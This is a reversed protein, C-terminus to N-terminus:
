EGLVEKIIKLDIPKKKKLSLEDVKYIFDFIKSYSRHIRKIIFDILKKDISIQRDSLNKLILAFILNDDPKEINQLIFNKARSKLDTLSFEINVIPINSTVIIYKNELDVINFLSYLLKEDINKDLDELIINEYIKIKKLDDNKLSNSNLKIGKFKRIFINSLHTKGSFKEGVINLFNKHWKPWKNLLSFIHENSKSVYFDDDTFNQDYNFKIISQNLDRM